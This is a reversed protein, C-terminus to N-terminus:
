VHHHKERLDQLTQIMVQVEATSLTTNPLKEIHQREAHLAVYTQMNGNSKIVQRQKTDKNTPHETAGKLYTAVIQTQQAKEMELEQALYDQYRTKDPRNESELANKAQRRKVRHLVLEGDKIKISNLISTLVLKNVEVTLKDCYLCFLLVNVNLGFGDQLGLLLEQVGRVKYFSLSFEWFSKETVLVHAM